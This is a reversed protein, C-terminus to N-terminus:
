MLLEIARPLVRVSFPSLGTVEGDIDLLQRVNTQLSFSSVQKYIVQKYGVHRGALFGSFLKLLTLRSDNRVIVLDVLGDDLLAKPAVKMGGGAHTTNSAFVAIFEGEEVAHDHTVTAQYTRKVLLHWLAAVTYCRSKLWRLKAGTQNAASFMGWGVVCIAYIIEETTSIEFLDIYRRRGEVIRRAATRADSCGLDRMLDNGTGAPIFGLPLKNGSHMSENVLNHLTGDGGISIIGDCDHFFQTIDRTPPTHVTM